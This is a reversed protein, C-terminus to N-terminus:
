CPFLPLSIERKEVKTIDVIGVLVVLLFRATWWGICELKSGQVAKRREVM